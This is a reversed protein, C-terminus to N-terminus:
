PDRPLAGGPRGDDEDTRAARAGHAEFSSRARDLLTALQTREDPSLDALATMMRAANARASREAMALGAPTLAVLTHRKDDGDETLGVLGARALGDVLNSITARSVELANVVHSQPVAREAAWLVMLVHMRSPSIADPGLWVHVANDMAHCAARVQFLVDM